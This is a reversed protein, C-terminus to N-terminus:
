RCPYRQDSLLESPDDPRPAGPVRGLILAATGDESRMFEPRGLSWYSETEFVAFDALQTEVDRAAAAVEPTDVSAGNARVLLVVNPRGKDFLVRLANEASWADGSEHSWGGGSGDSFLGGGVFAGGAITALMVLITVIRLRM